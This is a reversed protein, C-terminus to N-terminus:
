RIVQFENAAAGLYLATRARKAHDTASVANVANTIQTRTDTTMTGHMLRTNVLDVLTAASTQSAATYDALDLGTVSTGKANTGFINSSTSFMLTNLFNIRRIASETTFTQTEPASYTVGPSTTITFEPKYFSFVSAPSMIDQRMNAAQADLNWLDGTANLQRLMATIFLVGSRWHGYGPTASATQASRAEDDLLVAKVVAKMDGRVGQGNNNFVAVVRGVYARSPNATVLHQILRTAVFPGLNPHNFINDIAANLERKSYADLTESTTRAPLTLGNLLTKANTDHQASYLAMPAGFNQTYNFATLTKGPAPAYSWGTFVRAFNTVEDNGYTPIPEGSGDVQVSGDTNLKYVGLSFLQLLERAYNENPLSNTAANPKANNVMNLYAGMSPDLTMQYLLDRYNGLANRSLVAQYTMM